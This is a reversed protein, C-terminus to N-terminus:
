LREKQKQCKMKCVREVFDLELEPKPMPCGGFVMAKGIGSTSEM